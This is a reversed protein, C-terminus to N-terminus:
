DDEVEELDKIQVEGSTILDYMKRVAQEEDEAEVTLSITTRYTKM